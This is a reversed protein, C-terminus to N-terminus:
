WKANLVSEIVARYLEPDNRLRNNLQEVVREPLWDPHAEEIQRSAHALESSTVGRLINGDLKLTHSDRDSYGVVKIDMDTM